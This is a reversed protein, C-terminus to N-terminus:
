SDITFRSEDTLPEGEQSEIYQQSREDPINGSSVAVYGRAWCHRGGFQKRLHPFEQLMLRSSIGKRGPVIQSLDPHPKDQLFMPVPDRAVKGTIIELDPEVASQRLLDGVRLAVHGTLVRKRYQPSWVVHVQLDTRTHAGLQYRRM